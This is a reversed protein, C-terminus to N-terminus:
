VLRQLRVNLPERVSSVQQPAPPPSTAKFKHNKKKSNAPPKRTAKSPLNPAPPKDAKISRPATAHAEPIDYSYDGYYLDYYYDSYELLLPDELQVGPALAGVLVLVCVFM